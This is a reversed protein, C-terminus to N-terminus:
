PDISPSESSQLAAGADSAENVVALLQVIAGNMLEWGLEADADTPDGLIGNPAHAAVGDAELAPLLEALPTTNGPELEDTLVAEPAIALMISTETVGAHADGDPFSANFVRMTRGEDQAVAAAARLAALNGGHGNVFVLAAFAAAASRTIEVLVATLAETGISVTGAFGDHEGSAGFAVAPAVVLNDRQAAAAIALARAIRTDTDLPLHPGHQETSGVPILLVTESGHNRIEPWTLDGLFRSM